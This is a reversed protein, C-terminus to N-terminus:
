TEVLVELHNLLSALEKWFDLNINDVMRGSAIEEALSIDSGTKAIVQLCPSKQHEGQVSNLFYREEKGMITRIRTGDHYAYYSLLLVRRDSIGRMLRLWDEALLFDNCLKMGTSPFGRLAPISWTDDNVLVPAKFYKFAQEAKNRAIEEGKSSQIEPMELPQHALKIGYPALNIRAKNFKDQNTTAFIIPKM